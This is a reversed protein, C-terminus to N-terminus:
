KNTQGSQDLVPQLQSAGCAWYAEDRSKNRQKQPPIKIGWGHIPGQGEASSGQLGLQQDLLFTGLNPKSPPSM